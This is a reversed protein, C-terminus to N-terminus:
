KRNPIRVINKLKLFFDHEKYSIVHDISIYLFTRGRTRYESYAINVNCADKILTRLVVCIEREKKEGVSM